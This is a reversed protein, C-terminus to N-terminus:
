RGGLRRKSDLCHDLRMYSPPIDDSLVYDICDKKDAESYSAWRARVNDGAENQLRICDSVAAAQMRDTCFKEVDWSPFAPGAFCPVTWSIAILVMGTQLTKKM